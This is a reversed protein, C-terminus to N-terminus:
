YGAKVPKPQWGSTWQETPGGGEFAGTQAAVGYAVAAQSMPSYDKLPSPQWQKSKREVAPRILSSPWIAAANVSSLRKALPAPKAGGAIVGTAGTKCAAYVGTGWRMSGAMMPYESFQKDEYDCGRSLAIAQLSANYRAQAKAGVSFQGAKFEVSKAAVRSDDAEGGVSGDCCSTQYVGSPVNLAKYQRTVCEAMYRDVIDVDFAGSYRNCARMAEAKGIVYAAASVPNNAFQTEEHHCGAAGVIAARRTAYLDAYQASLSAQRQRFRVSKTRVALDYASGPTSGEACQVTYMGGSAAFQKYQRTVNRAMYADAAELTSTQINMVVTRTSRTRNASVIADGGFSSCVSSTVNQSRPAVSVSPAFAYMKTTTTLASWAERKSGVFQRVTHSRRQANAAVQLLFAWSPLM